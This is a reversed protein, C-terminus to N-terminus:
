QLVDEPEIGLPTALRGALYALRPWNAVLAVEFPSLVPGNEDAMEGPSLSVARNGKNTGAVSDPTSDVGAGTAVTPLETSTMGGRSTLEPSTEGTGNSLSDDNCLDNGMPLLLCTPTPAVGARWGAVTQNDNRREGSTRGSCSTPTAM